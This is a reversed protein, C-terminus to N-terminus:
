RQRLGGLILWLGLALALLWTLNYIIAVPSTFFDSQLEFVVLNVWHELLKAGLCGLVLVTGCILRM